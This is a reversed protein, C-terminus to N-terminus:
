VSLESLIRIREKINEILSIHLYLLDDIYFNGVLYTCHKRQKCRKFNRAAIHMGIKLVPALLFIRLSANLLM